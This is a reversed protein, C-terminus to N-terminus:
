YHHVQLWVGAYIMAIGGALMAMLAGEHQPLHRELWEIPRFLAGTWAALLPGSAPPLGTHAEAGHDARCASTAFYCLLPSAVYAIADPFM